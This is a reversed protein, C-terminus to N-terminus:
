EALVTQRALSLLAYPWAPTSPMPGIPELASGTVREAILGLSSFGGCSSVGTEHNRDDVDCWKQM